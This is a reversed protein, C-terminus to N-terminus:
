RGPTDPSPRSEPRLTADLWSGAQEVEADTPWGGGLAKYLNVVAVAQQRRTSSALLEAQFLSRESELVELYSTVGGDYRARSLDVASRAADRQFERARAEAAFTTIDVLANDVEQLARLVTLEYNRLLQVTRAEEAEVRSRTRGADFIPGLLSGGVNWAENDSSIFDDLEPSALGLFGTLNFSPFRQAQAVGIRATQAALAQSAQRVDPRRELLESPLGAPVEPVNLVRMRDGGVRPIARPAEGLLVSLANESRGRDRELAALQAEADALQIQAQNVDILAVTGRDYRAQILDLSAQRTERTREAIAIRDDLDHLLLYASAVDGILTVTVANRAEITALLEARAAETARRLKGWLDIEFSLNAALVYQEGIGGGPVGGQIFNGRTAQANGSVNPFQDARVFGLSARAEEIRAAAIAVDKNNVLATEILSALTPDGFLQWWDLNAISEGDVAAHRYDEPMPVDPREYDPGLACGALATALLAPALRRLHRARGAKV